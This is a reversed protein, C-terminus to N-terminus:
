SRFRRHQMQMQQFPPARRRRGHQPTSPSWCMAYACDGVADVQMKCEEAASGPSSPRMSGWARCALGSGALDLFRSPLSGRLRLAASAFTLSIMGDYAACPIAALRAAAAAAAGARSASPDTCSRHPEGQKAPAEESAVGVLPVTEPGPVAGTALRPLPQSSQRGGASQRGVKALNVLLLKSSRAAHGPLKCDKHSALWVLSHYVPSGPLPAAAAACAASRPRTAAHAERGCGAESQAQRRFTNGGAGGAPTATCRPSGRVKLAACDIWFM